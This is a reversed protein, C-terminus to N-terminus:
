STQPKTLRDQLSKIWGRDINPVQKRSTRCRNRDEELAKEFDLIARDFEDDELKSLSSSRQKSPMSTVKEDSNTDEQMSVEGRNSQKKKNKKNKKSAAAAPKGKNSGSSEIIQLIDDVAM